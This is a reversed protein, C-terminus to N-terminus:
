DSAFGMDMANSGDGLVDDCMDDVGNAVAFAELCAWDMPECGACEM